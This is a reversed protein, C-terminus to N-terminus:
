FEFESRANECRETRLVKGRCGQRDAQSRLRLGALARAGRFSHAEGGRVAFSM